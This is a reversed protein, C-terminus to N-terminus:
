GRKMEVESGAFLLRRKLTGSIKGLKGMMSGVNWTSFRIGFQVDPYKGMMRARTCWEWWELVIKRRPKLAKKRVYAPVSLAKATSQPTGGRHMALVLIVCYHQCFNYCNIDKTVSVLLRLINCAWVKITISASAKFWGLLGVLCHPTQLDSDGEGLHITLIYSELKVWWSCTPKRACFAQWACSQRKIIDPGARSALCFANSCSLSDLKALQIFRKMSYFISLEEVWGLWEQRKKDM